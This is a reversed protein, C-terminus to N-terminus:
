SYNRWQSEWGFLNYSKSHLRTLDCQRGVGETNQATPLTTAATIPQGIEFRNAFEVVEPV